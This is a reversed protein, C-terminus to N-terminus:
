YWRERYYSDPAHTFSNQRGTSPVFKMPPSPSTRTWPQVSINAQSTDPAVLSLPALLGCVQEKATPTPLLQSISDHLYRKKKQPLLEDYFGSRSEKKLSKPFHPATLKELLM